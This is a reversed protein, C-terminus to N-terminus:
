AFDLDGKLEMKVQDDLFSENRPESVPTVGLRLANAGSLSFALELKAAACLKVLLQHRALRYKRAPSSRSSQYPAWLIVLNLKASPSPLVKPFGSFRVLPFDDDFFM